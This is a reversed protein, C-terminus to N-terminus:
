DYCSDELDLLWSAADNEKVRWLDECFLSCFMAGFSTSGECTLCLDAEQVVPAKRFTM